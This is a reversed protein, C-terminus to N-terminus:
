PLEEIRQEDVLFKMKVKGRAMGDRGKAVAIELLTERPIEIADPAVDGRSKETRRATLIFDPSYSNAPLEEGPTNSDSKRLQSVVVLPDDLRRQARLLAAIRADDREISSLGSDRGMPLQGLHDVLVFARSCGALSKFAQVREVIRDALDELNLGSLDESDIISIRPALDRLCALGEDLRKRDGSSLHLGDPGPKENMDGKRLTRYPIKTTQCALRRKMTERGMELSLFVFAARPNKSVIGLGVQLLLTTKGIGPEAALVGLGQWGDLMGDLRPFCGCPLGLFEVGHTKALSSEFGELDDLLSAGTRRAVVRQKAALDGLAKVVQEKPWKEREMMWDAIDFGEPTEKQRSSTLRLIRIECGLGRLIKEVSTAYAEGARDRDPMIVVSRGRLPEWDTKHASQAGSSSTTAVLGINRLWDVCKEGEVVFVFGWADSYPNVVVEQGGFGSEDWETVPAERKLRAVTAATPPSWQRKPLRYLPRLGEPARAKWEKGDFSIPRITKRGDKHELRYVFFDTSYRYEGAIRFGDRVFSNAVAHRRAENEADAGDLLIEAFSPKTPTSPKQRNAHEDRLQKQRKADEDRLQQLTLKQSARRPPAGAKRPDKWGKEKALHVLTGVSIPKAASGRLLANWDSLITNEDFSEGRRSWEKWMEFLDEGIEEGAAKVSAGIRIWEERSCSPDLTDLADSIEDRTLKRWGDDVHIAMLQRREEM